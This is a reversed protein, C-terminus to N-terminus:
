MQPVVKSDNIPSARPFQSSPCGRSKDLAEVNVVAESQTKRASETFSSCARCFSCNM